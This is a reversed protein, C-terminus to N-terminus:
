NMDTRRFRLLGLGTILLMMGTECLPLMCLMSECQSRKWISEESDSLMQEKAPIISNELYVTSLTVASQPLVLSLITASTREPQPLYDPNPKTGFIQLTRENKEDWITQVYPIEKQAMLSNCLPRSAFMGCLLIAASAIIAFTRTKSNLSLIVCLVAAFCFMLLIGLAGLLIYAAPFRMLVSPARLMPLLMILSTICAFVLAPPLEALLIKTKSYGAIVANRIPDGEGRNLLVAAGTVLLAAIMLIPYVTLNCVTDGGIIKQTYVTVCNIVSCCIIGILCYVTSLKNKWRLFNVRM